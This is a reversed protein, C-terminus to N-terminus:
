GGFQEVATADLASGVSDCGLPWYNRPTPVNDATLKAAAHPKKQLQSPANEPPITPHIM